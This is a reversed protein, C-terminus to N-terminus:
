SSNKDKNGAKVNALQLKRTLNDAKVSPSIAIATIEGIDPEFFSTYKIKSDGLAKMVEGLEEKNRVSLCILYGSTKRWQRFTRGNMYAWEAIAHGTQATQYGHSLDRRVVTIM